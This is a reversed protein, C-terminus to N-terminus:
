EPHKLPPAATMRGLWKVLAGHIVTDDSVWSRSADLTDCIKAGGDYLM